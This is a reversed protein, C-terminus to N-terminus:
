QIGACFDRLAGFEEPTLNTCGEMGLPPKPSIILGDWTLMRVLEKITDFLGSLAQARSPQGRAPDYSNPGGATIEMLQFLGERDHFLHFKKEM